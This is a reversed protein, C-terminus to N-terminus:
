DNVHEATDRQQTGNMEEPKPRFQAASIERALEQPNAAIRLTRQMMALEQYTPITMLDAAGVM